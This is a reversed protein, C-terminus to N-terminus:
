IEKIKFITSFSARKLYVMFNWGKRTPSPIKGPGESQEKPHFVQAEQGLEKALLMTFALPRVWWSLSGCKFGWKIDLKQESM